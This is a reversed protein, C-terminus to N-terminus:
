QNELFDNNAGKNCNGFQCGLSGQMHIGSQNQTKNFPNNLGTPQVTDVRNNISRKTNDEANKQKFLPVGTSELSSGPLTCVSEGSDPEVPCLAWVPFIFFISLFLFLKKM